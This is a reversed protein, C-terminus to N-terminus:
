VAEDRILRHHTQRRPLSFAFTSGEGETTKVMITGEMLEVLEKAISLGLGHGARKPHAPSQSFADFLHPIFGEPIGEGTDRIMLYVSHANQRVVLEVAGRDTYKIANSILNLLVRHVATDNAFAVAAEPTTCHRLTLGKQVAQPQMQQVAEAVVNDINVWTRNLTGKGERIQVLDLVSEVTHKIREGSRLILQVFERQEEDVEEDLIKAFGLISTLPNNIDHTLRGLTTSVPSHQSLPQPPASHSHGDGSHQPLVSPLASVLLMGAASVHLEDRAPAIHITYGVGNHTLQHSHTEGRLAQRLDERWTQFLAEPLLDHLSGADASWGLTGLADGGAHLVFSARDYFVVGTNELHEILAKMLFFSTAPAAEPRHLPIARM